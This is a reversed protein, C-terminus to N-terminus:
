HLHELGPAPFAACLTAVDERIRTQLSNDDPAAVVKGIWEGIRVMEEAGFGRSTVAATGLRIGSPDFPKRPDFPVANYNLVIGAQDLAKAAIKGTVGKNTLDILMLHNETGGTVLNFGQDTLAAALVQANKVIQAAYQKFESTAAEKLAVAIAATTNNHPGGQLGPFVAKDIAAAHEQKCFIMAGRPGRLSKHTTTTIVDAYPVPSPHAGGAVLGSFHAMDVLLLSGCADAIERFRAFDLIRPYASHGAILIRPRCSLAKEHISDYNLLGTKEDLSYSEAQFFKGSISVKAGHTLHGGHPLAMGLITDGPNLFAFYVALNAPSGSYPQVNVHEAGFLEKARHIALNEVQDIFQQGEYYRKGPYGESYKNTLVSGTAAMVAASVYNESAILRVKNKQRVEEQRILDLIEPDHQELSNM